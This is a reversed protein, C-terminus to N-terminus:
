PMLEWLQLLGFCVVVMALVLLFSIINQLTKM